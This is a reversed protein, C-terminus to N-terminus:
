FPIDDENITPIDEKETLVFEGGEDLEANPSSVYYVKIMKGQVNSLIAWVKVEKGIWKNSDEGFADIMNNISTQNLNFDRVTEGDPLLIQFIRQTGYNGEVAKGEDNITIIDGDKIEIGKKVFDGKLSVKKKYIAM